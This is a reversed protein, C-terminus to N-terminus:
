VTVGVDCTFFVRLTGGRPVTLGAWVFVGFQFFTVCGLHALEDDSYHNSIVSKFVAMNGVVEDRVVSVTPDQAAGQKLRKDVGEFRKYVKFVETILSLRSKFIIDM